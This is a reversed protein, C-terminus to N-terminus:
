VNRKKRRTFYLAGLTVCIVVLSLIVTILQREQREKQRQQKQEQRKQEDQQKQEQLRAIEQLRHEQTLNMERIKRQHEQEEAYQQYALAFAYDEQQQRRQCAAALGQGIATGLSGGLSTDRIVQMQASLYTGLFITIFLTVCFAFFIRM